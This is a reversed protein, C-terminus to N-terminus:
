VGTKPVQVFNYPLGVAMPVLLSTSDNLTAASVPFTTIYTFTVSDVVTITFAGMAMRNSLGQIGVINGTALGHPSKTVVTITYTNDSTVSQLPIPQNPTARTDIGLLPGVEQVVRVDNTADGNSTTVRIDGGPVPIGTIPDVTNFGSIQRQDATDARYSEIRPNKVPMPDAPLVIARLQNQPIDNCRRCVLQRKNILSAGNWDFQWSLDVHNYLFGCKDCIAFAQPNRTSVRARGHPRM